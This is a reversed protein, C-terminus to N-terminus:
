ADAVWRWLRAADDYAHDPLHPSIWFDADAAVLRTSLGSGLRVGAVERLGILLVLCGLRFMLPIAQEQLLDTRFAAQAIVKGTDVGEDVLHCSPGAFRCGREYALRLPEMGMTGAFAPLLSYHLNLLRVNHRRVSDADIIKNWTTVVADPSLNELVAQFKTPRSRSYAARCHERYGRPLLPGSRRM